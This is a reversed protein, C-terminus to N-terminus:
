KYIRKNVEDGIADFVDVTIYKASLIISCCLMEKLVRFADGLEKRKAYNEFVKAMNKTFVTKRFDHEKSDIALIVDDFDELLKRKVQERKRGQPANYVKSSDRVYLIEDVKGLIFRKKYFRLLFEYDQHRVYSADFGNLAHVADKHILWSSTQPSDLGLLINRSFDKKWKVIRPTNGFRSDCFCGQVSPHMKMYKVQKEIKQPLYYDDDDLFCLYDGKAALMGTNRAASGNKNCEHKIYRVRADTSYREMLKSTAKRWETDPDNDDVVIVEVNPYTQNLVSDVARPLSDARKYTPVIVSVIPLSM